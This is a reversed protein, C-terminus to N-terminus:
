TDGALATFMCDGLTEFGFKGQENWGGQGHLQQGTSKGVPFVSRNEDPSRRFYTDANANL